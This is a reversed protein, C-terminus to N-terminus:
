ADSKMNEFWMTQSLIASYPETGSIRMNDM